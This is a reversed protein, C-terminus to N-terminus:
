NSGQYPTGSVSISKLLTQDEVDWIKITKDSSSSVLYNGFSKINLIPKTHGTLSMIHNNNEDYGYITDVNSNPRGAIFINGNHFTNTYSYRIDSFMPVVEKTLTFGNWNYLVQEQESHVTSVLLKNEHFSIARCKECSFSNLIETSSKDFM